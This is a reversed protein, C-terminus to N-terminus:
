ALLWGLQLAETPYAPPDGPGLEQWGPGAAWCHGWWGAACRVENNVFCYLVAVMLGQLHCAPSLSFHAPARVGYGEEFRAAWASGPM